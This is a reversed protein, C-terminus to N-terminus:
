RPAALSRLVSVFFHWALLGPLEAALTRSKREAPQLMRKPASDWRGPESAAQCAPEQLAGPALGFAVLVEFAAMRGPGVMQEAVVEQAWEAVGERQQVRDAPLAGAILGRAVGM